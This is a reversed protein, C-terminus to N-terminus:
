LRSNIVQKLQKICQRKNAQFDGDRWWSEVKKIAKGFDPGQILGLKKADSGKIPFEPKHWTSAENIMDLWHKSRESSLHPDINEEHAWSLLILDCFNDIGLDYLIQHQELPNSEPVPLKAPKTMRALQLSQKNSLRLRKALSLHGNQDSNLVAALRRLKDPRISDNNSFKTEIWALTRLRGFDRAEPLVHKLILESNMLSLTKAPDPAEFIKFLESQIRESSLEIIRPALDRCASIADQDLKNGGFTAHFRFFRLLRLLDEEIRERASGVFRVRHHNLDDLGSLPDFLDGDITSSMTNITFDRRLADTVWDDTFAVTAQRGHNETDIRLTTIEYRLSNIIATVTGYKLATPIAIINAAKLLEMVKQPPEPTAIDIDKVPKNCIANRICGGIFRAQKGGAELARFLTQTEPTTMWSQPELKSVARTQVSNM